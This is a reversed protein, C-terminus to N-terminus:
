PTVSASVAARDWSKLLPLPDIAEGGQYWGPATWLEFHLHCTTAHGTQGINGILDGAVVRDGKDLKSPKILHMYAQSTGDNANIVVYNGAASQVDVTYVTGGLGALVPVGCKALVDQGQHGRGGGFTNVFTGFSHKGAVPFVGREQAVPTTGGSVIDEAKPTPLVTLTPGRLVAGKLVANVAGTRAADPVEVVVRHPSRSIPKATRDDKRGKGGLFRVVRTKELGSGKLKLLSGRPCQEAHGDDCSLATVSPKEFGAGGTGAVQEAAAAAPLCLITVAAATFGCRARALAHLIPM